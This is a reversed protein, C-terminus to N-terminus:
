RLPPLALRREIFLRESCLVNLQTKNYNQIEYDNKQKCMRHMKQKNNAKIKICAGPLRGPLVQVDPAHQGLLLDVFDRVVPVRHASVYDGPEAQLLSPYIIFRM